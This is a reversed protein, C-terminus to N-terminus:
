KNQALQEAVETVFPDQCLQLSLQWLRDISTQDLTKDAKTLEVFADKKWSILKGSRSLAQERDEIFLPAMIEGCREISIFRGFFKMIRAMGRMGSPILNIQNTWVTKPIQFGYCAVPDTTNSSYLQHLKTYFMRKAIMGQRIGREYSWKKTQQVDDWYMEGWEMANFVVRGGVSSRELLDLLRLTLMFQALYNVQFHADMGDATEIRKGAYGIGANVFLADLASYKNRIESIVRRVDDLRTLDCLVMSIKSNGTVASLEEVTADGLTQSRSMLIIELQPNPRAALIKAVGKGMGHTAGTILIKM